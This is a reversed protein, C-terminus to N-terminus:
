AASPRTPGDVRRGPPARHDARQTGGRQDFELSAAPRKPSSGRRRIPSRSTPRSRRSARSRSQQDAPAPLALHRRGSACWASRTTSARCSWSSPRAGRGTARGCRACRLRGPPAAPASGSAAASHPPQRQRDAATGLFGMADSGEPYRVVEIYTDPEAFFGSAIAIGRRTTSARRRARDLRLDGRQQHARLAGLRALPRPLDGESRRAAPPPQRHRARRGRARRGRTRPNAAPGPAPAPRAAFTLVYGRQRRWRPRDDRIREVLTEPRVEAGLKEAFYLYNKDLTNKAGHRCGVM